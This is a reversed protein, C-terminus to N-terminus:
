CIEGHPFSRRAITDVSFEVVNQELAVFIKKTDPSFTIGAIHQNVMEPGLRITQRENFTRADVINIYSIHESYMLLDMSGSPSFKVNRCAGTVLPSQKSKLVSLKESSRIDWVSIQGDQSAVAFKDSNENWACSFGADESAILKTVLKYDDNNSTGIDYLYVEPSDGVAVLKRGDPSVSAYNVATPFDITATRQLNPINYVKITKDNNSIFLKTDEGLKAIHLANNISGGVSTQAFWDSELSRVMLQSRQGGAALYGNSATISTASFAMGQLLPTVTGKHTDYANINNQYVSIFEKNSRPCVILDRLQWHQISTKLNYTKPTRRVFSADERMYVTM